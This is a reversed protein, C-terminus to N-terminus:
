RKKPTSLQIVGRVQYHGCLKSNHKIALRLVTAEAKKDIFMRQGGGVITNAGRYAESLEVLPKDPVVCDIEPRARTTVLRQSM